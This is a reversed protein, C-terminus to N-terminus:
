ITVNHLNFCGDDVLFIKFLSMKSLEDHYHLQQGQDQSDDGTLFQILSTSIFYIIDKPVVNRLPSYDM